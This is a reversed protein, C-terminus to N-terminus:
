GAIGDALEQVTAGLLALRAQDAHPACSTCFPRHQLISLGLAIRSNSERSARLALETDSGSPMSESVLRGGRTYPPETLGETVTSATGPATERAAWEGM